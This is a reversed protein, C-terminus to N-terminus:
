RSHGVACLTRESRDLATTILGLEAQDELAPDHVLQRM